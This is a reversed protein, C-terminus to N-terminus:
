AFGVGHGNNNDSTESLPAKVFTGAVPQGTAPDIQGIWEGIAGTSNSYFALWLRGSTDFGLEPDYGCCGPILNGSIQFAPDLGPKFTYLTSGSNGAWLLG